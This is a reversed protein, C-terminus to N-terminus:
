TKLRAIIADLKENTEVRGHWALIKALAEGSVEARIAPLGNARVKGPYFLDRYCLPVQRLWDDFTDWPKVCVVRADVTSEGFVEIYGLPDVVILVKERNEREQTYVAEIRQGADEAEDRLVQLEDWHALLTRCLRETLPPQKSALISEVMRRTVPVERLDNRSKKATDTVAM